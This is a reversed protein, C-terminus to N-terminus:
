AASATARGHHIAQIRGSVRAAVAAVSHRSEIDAAARRGREAGADPDDVLSALWEAAHDIDPEAWSADPPYPLRGPGVRALGYRVLASNDPTMFDLNGSYATAVVPKGIAMAEAM